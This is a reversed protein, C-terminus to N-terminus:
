YFYYDYTYVRLSILLALHIYLGIYIYEYAICMICKTKGTSEFFIEHRLLDWDSEEMTIQVDHVHYKDFLGVEGHVLGIRNFVLLVTTATFTLLLLSSVQKLM